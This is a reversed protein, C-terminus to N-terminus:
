IYLHEYCIVRGIDKPMAAVSLLRYLELSPPIKLHQLLFIFLNNLAHRAMINDRNNRHELPGKRKAPPDARVPPRALIYTAFNLPAMFGPVASNRLLAKCSASAELAPSRTM